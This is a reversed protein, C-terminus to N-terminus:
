STKQSRHRIDKSDLTLKSHQCGTQLSPSPLISPPSPEPSTIPSRLLSPGEVLGDRYTKAKRAGLDSQDESISEGRM